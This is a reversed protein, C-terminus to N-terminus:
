GFPRVRIIMIVLIVVLLMLVSVLIVIKNTDTKEKHTSEEKEKEQRTIVLMDSSRLADMKSIIDLATVKDLGHSLLVPNKLAFSPVVLVVFLGQEDFASKIAEFLDKNTVIIKAGKELLFLKTSPHDIPVNELFTGIQADYHYEPGSPVDKEFYVSESLILILNVPSIKNRNIFSQIQIEFEEKNKVELDAILDKPFHFSLINPLQVSFFDFRDRTLYIVGLKSQEFM